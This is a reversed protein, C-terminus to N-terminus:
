VVSKRDTLNSLSIGGKLEVQPMDYTRPEPEAELIPALMSKATKLHVVSAAVRDLNWFSAILVGYAIGFSIYDSPSIASKAAALYILATALLLTTKYIAKSYRIFFPPSHKIKAMQNYAGSWKNFAILEASSLKIKAIGGLMGYLLGSLQAASVSYAKVWRSMSFIEILVFMVVLLAVLGTLPLLAGAFARIQFFYVLSFVGGLLASLVELNIIQVTGGYDTIRSTLDGSTYKKFFGAPLSLLKALLSGQFKLNIKTSMNFVALSKIISFLMLSLLVGVALVAYPLLDAKTGSPILQNFIAKNLLPIILGLLVAALQALLIPLIDEKDFLSFIFRLLGTSQQVPKYFSIAQAGISEANKGTVKVMRQKKLDYYRCGGTLSPLIYTYEGFVTAIVPVALNNYWGGELVLGRKMVNAKQCVRDILQEGTMQGALHGDVRPMKVGLRSLIRGLAFRLPNDDKLFVGEQKTDVITVLNRFSSNM